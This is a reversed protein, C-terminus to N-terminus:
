KMISFHSGDPGGHDFCQYNRFQATHKIWKNAIWKNGYSVPCGLHFNRSDPSMDAGKNFWYLASGQIPQVSIGVQPFITRGGSQVNSMYIMFTIFRLGGFRVSEPENKQGSSSDSHISIFGGIGYNMVQYNESDFPTKKLVCNTLQEIFFSINFGKYNDILQASSM